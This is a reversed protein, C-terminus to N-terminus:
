ALAKAIEELEMETKAEESVLSNLKQKTADLTKKRKDYEIIRVRTKFDEEWESVSYNDWKFEAKVGLRKCAEKFSEEQTILFALARALIAVDVVTNLNFFNGDSYKFIGNTELSAKERSGLNTKQDEVKQLLSKIAADNNQKSM